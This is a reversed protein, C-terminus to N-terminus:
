VFGGLGEKRSQIRHLGPRGPDYGRKRACTPCLLGIKNIFKWGKKNEKRPQGCDGCEAKGVGSKNVSSKKRAMERCM